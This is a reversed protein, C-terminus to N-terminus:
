LGRGGNACRPSGGQGSADAYLSSMDNLVGLKVVGDSVQALASGCGLVTAAITLCVLRKM